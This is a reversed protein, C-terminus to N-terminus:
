AQECARIAKEFNTNMDDGGIFINTVLNEVATRANSSGVFSPSTFYWKEQEVSTKTSSAQIGDEELYEKYVDNEYASKIVPMYGSNMSFQAQFATHTTFYKIFIWSAMVKQPDDNQFICVDPGQQIAAPNHEVDHQPLKAIKAEFLDSSQYTAGASSGICMYCRQGEPDTNTFLGSTYSNYVAKTTILGDDYWSEFKTMFEKTKDNNFLYHNGTSSTYEADFQKCMTIFLNAGSDYGLPISNVDIQKIRKCVYEMSTTDNATKNFWHTPVQLNNADFFTKNYYLVETSKSFPLCYMKGDGFTKGEEYFAPVFDNYEEQTFGLNEDEILNDLCVVSKATNYTAIHDPYCYAVNADTKGAALETNMQSRVDEYGGILQTDVHINPYATSFDEDLYEKFVKQLEHGMTTYFKITVDKTTDFGGEPIVFDVSKTNTQSTSNGSSGNESLKNDGPVISSSTNGCSTLSLVTGVLTLSLVLLTSLKGKM